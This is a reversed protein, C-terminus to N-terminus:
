VVERAKAARAVKMRFRGDKEHSSTPPSSRQLPPTTLRHWVEDGTSGTILHKTADTDAIEIGPSISEFIRRPIRSPYKALVQPRPDRIRPISFQQLLRPEIAIPVRLIRPAEGRHLM